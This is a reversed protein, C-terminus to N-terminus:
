FCNLGDEEGGDDDGDQSAPQDRRWRNQLKGYTPACGRGTAQGARTHQKRDKPELLLLPLDM